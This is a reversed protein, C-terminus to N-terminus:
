HEKYDNSFSVCSIFPIFLSMIKTMTTSPIKSPTPSHNLPDTFPQPASNPDIKMCLKLNKISVSHQLNHMFIALLLEVKGLFLELQDVKGLLAWTSSSKGFLAWTSSTKLRKSWFGHWVFGELFGEEILNWILIGM